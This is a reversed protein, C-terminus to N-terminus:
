EPVKVTFRFSAAGTATLPGSGSGFVNPNFGAGGAKKTFIELDEETTHGPVATLGLMIIGVHEEVHIPAGSLKFKSGPLPGLAPAGFPSWLALLLPM